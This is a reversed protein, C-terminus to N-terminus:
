DDKRGANHKKECEPRKPVMAGEESLQGAERRGCSSRVDMMAIYSGVADGHRSAESVTQNLQSVNVPRLDAEVSVAVGAASGCSLKVGVGKSGDVAM